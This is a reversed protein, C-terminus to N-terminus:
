RADRTDTPSCGFAEKYCKSFYALSTFGVAYAIEGVTKETSLLMTKAKQLRLSRILEVPTYNTLAKIKRTFQSQGLGMQAAVESVQLDPDALREQVLEVFRTYFESEVDNPRHSGQSAKKVPAKEKRPEAGGKGYLERIRKRNLLLNRCRATLVDLNFPKSMYADAGHEYGAVRQEDLSCATLMLVPIHSTSVEEKLCKVCEFGNLGPMMVDCLIVDPVYKTAMKLGQMGDSATLVNYEEGMQGSILARIDRNDDIVLLTPKDDSFTDENVEVAALETEID